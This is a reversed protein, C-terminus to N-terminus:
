AFVEKRAERLAGNIAAIVEAPNLQDEEGVGEEEAHAGLHARAKAHDEEPMSTQPERALANRLHPKDVDGVSNHHPLKRLNRPTTKGEDDKEGGALIVAFASDPLNNIYETDWEADRIGPALDIPCGDAMDCTGEHVSALGEMAGHLRDLNAQSMTRGADQVPAPEQRVWEPVNKFKSLNFIRGAMATAKPKGALVEDALGADIAEQARYWTEELMAARWEAETGGARDAYIGAITDGIKGLSEAMKQMTESNGVAMGYPEHIMMTASKAMIIRDGAQAIFSATSAALGDVTVNVTAPHQKLSNYIAIGDFVEGGPSNLHLNIIGATIAQLEKVFDSASIGWFGIEDYIHIEAEEDAANRIEYWSRRSMRDQEREEWQRRCVAFRQGRDPFEEKSEGMCREIFDDESEGKRPKPLPM